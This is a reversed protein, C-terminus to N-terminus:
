VATRIDVIEQGEVKQMAARVEELSFDTIKVVADYFGPQRPTPYVGVGMVGMNHAALVRNLKAFEGKQDPMRMTVRVGPFPMGLLEQYSRLLDDETLIGVVMNDEVVPLCGIKNETMTRAAREVTRDPEITIVDGAKIMVDGATLKSIFRTIEWVNLSSLRGADLALRQRTVLGLLRKGPGVVPLHRISNETMIHQAEMAPTSPPIMIPHRTMCDKILM